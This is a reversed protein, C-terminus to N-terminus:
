FCLYSHGVRLFAFFPNHLHGHITLNQAGFKLWLKSSTFGKGLNADDFFRMRWAWFALSRLLLARENNRDEILFISAVVLLASASARISRVCDMMSLVACFPTIWRLAAARYLDLIM